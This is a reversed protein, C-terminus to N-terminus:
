EELGLDLVLEGTALKKAMESTIPKGLGVTRKGQPSTGPHRSGGPGGGGRNAPQQFETMAAFEAVKQALPVQKRGDSWVVEGQSNEKLRPELLAAIHQRGRATLEIPKDGSEIAAIAGQLTKEIRAATAIAESRDVREQLERLQQRAAEREEEIEPPISPADSPERPAQLQKKLRKIQNQHNETQLELKSQLERVQQDRDAMVDDLVSDVGSKVLAQIEEASLSHKTAGSDGTEPDGKAGPGPDIPEEAM